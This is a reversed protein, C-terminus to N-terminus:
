KPKNRFKDKDLNKEKSPMWEEQSLFQFESNISELQKLGSEENQNRSKRILEM